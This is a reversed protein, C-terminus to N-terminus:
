GGPKAASPPFLHSAFPPIQTYLIHSNADFSSGNLGNRRALVGLSTRSYLSVHGNRPGIYWWSMGRTEIDDPQLLTTFFVAGREVRLSAWDAFTARPDTSHEAVEISVVLDYTKNPRASHASIFPDYVDVNAFGEARMLESLRGSGGGYDLVRMNRVSPFADAIKGAISRPRRDAYDPDVAAYGDNYIFRRFDDATFVDFAATFLFGCHECRHYQVVVGAAALRVGRGESCNRNFDAEGFYRATGGCVKCSLPEKAQVQLQPFAPEAMRCAM